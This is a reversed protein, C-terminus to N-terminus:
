SKEPELLAIAVIITPENFRRSFIIDLACFILNRLYFFTKMLFIIVFELEFDSVEEPIDEREDILEIM